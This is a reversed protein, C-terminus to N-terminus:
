EDSKKGGALIKELTADIDLLKDEEGQPVLAYSKSLFDSIIWRNMRFTATGYPSALSIQILPDSEFVPTVKVDGDGSAVDLGQKLLDRAFSWEVPGDIGTHFTVKVSLPELQSYLFTANLMVHSDTLVLKVPVYRTVTTPATENM